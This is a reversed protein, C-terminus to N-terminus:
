NKARIEDLIYQMLDILELEKLSTVFEDFNLTCSTGCFSQEGEAAFEVIDWLLQWLELKPCVSLENIIPQPIITM